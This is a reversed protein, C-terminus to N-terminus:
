KSLKIFGFPVGKRILKRTKPFIVDDSYRGKRMSDKLKDWTRDNLIYDGFEDKDIAWGGTMFHWGSGAGVRLICESNQCAEGIKKIEILRDLYEELVMPNDEDEWFDIEKKLLFLTHKNILKFLTKIDYAPFDPTTELHRTRLIAKKLDEPITIDLTTQSGSPICEFYSSLQKKEDWGNRYENVVKSKNLETQTNFYADGVRLLRLLDKRPDVRFNTGQKPALYHAQINGDKYSIRGGRERGLNRENSAFRPNKKILYNLVATRISGKLSSGPISPLNPRGLHIQSKIKERSPIQNLMNIERLSVDKAEIDPKRVKLLDKLLDANPKEILSVWHQINEEGIIDLIKTPEVVAVKGEQHFSLYEIGPLLEDGSGVHVPSLTQISIKEKM